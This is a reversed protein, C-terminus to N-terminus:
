YEDIVRPNAKMNLLPPIEPHIRFAYLINDLWAVVWGGSAM